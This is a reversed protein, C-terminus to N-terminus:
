RQEKLDFEKAILSLVVGISAHSAALPEMDNLCLDDLTNKAFNRGTVPDAFKALVHMLRKYQRKATKAEVLYDEMTGNRHHRELEQDEGGRSPELNASRASRSGADMFYREYNRIIDAYRRAAIGQTVTLCGLYVLKTVPVTLKRGAAIVKVLEDLKDPPCNHLARVAADITETVNKWRVNHGARRNNERQQYGSPRKPKVASISKIQIQDTVTIAGHM